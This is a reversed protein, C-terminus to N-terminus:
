STSCDNQFVWCAIIEAHILTWNCVSEGYYDICQQFDCLVQACIIDLDYAPNREM